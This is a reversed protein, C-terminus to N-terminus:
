KWIRSQGQLILVDKSHTNNGCKHFTDLVTSMEDVCLLIIQSTVYFFLFGFCYPETRVVM